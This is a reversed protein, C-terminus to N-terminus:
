VEMPVEGFRLLSAWWYGLSYVFWAAAWLAALPLATITLEVMSRARSPERYHSLVQTWTSPDSASIGANSEISM